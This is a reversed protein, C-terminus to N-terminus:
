ESGRWDDREEEVMRNLEEPSVFQAHMQRLEDLARRRDEPTVANFRLDVAERVVAAVSTKRKRAEAELRKRQDPRILIQLRETLMSMAYVHKGTLLVM